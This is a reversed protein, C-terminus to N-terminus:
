KISNSCKMKLPSCLFPLLLDVTVTHLVTCIDEPRLSFSADRSRNIEIAKAHLPPETEDV